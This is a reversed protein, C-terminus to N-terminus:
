FLHKDGEKSEYFHFSASMLWSPPILPLSDNQLGFPLQKDGKLIASTQM